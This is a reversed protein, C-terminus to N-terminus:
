RGRRPFIKIGNGDINLNLADLRERIPPPVAAKDQPTMYPGSWQLEGAKDFVKAECSDGERTIEINGHADMMRLTSKMTGHIGAGLAPPAKPMDQLMKQLRKQIEGDPDGMQLPLGGGGFAGGQQLGKLNKELQERMQQPLARLMEDPIAMPAASANEMGAIQDDPRAALTVMKEQETGRHIFKLSVDAGPLYRTIMRSLCEHSKVKKGDIGLIIDAEQLGSKAAPGDPDLVRVMACQAADIGLHKALADPVPELGIGIYATKQEEVLPMKEAAKPAEEAVPENAAKQPEPVNADEAPAQNPALPEVKNPPELAWLATSAFGLPILFFPSHKM